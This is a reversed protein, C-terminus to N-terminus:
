SGYRLGTIKTVQKPEKKKEERTTRLQSRFFMTRSVAGRIIDRQSDNEAAFYRQIDKATTAKLYDSFGEISSLENFLDREQKKEISYDLVSGLNNVYLSLIEEDTLPNNVIDRVNDKKYYGLKNLVTDIFNKM